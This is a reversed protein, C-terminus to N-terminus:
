ENLDLRTNPVGGAGGGRGEERRGQGGEKLKSLNSYYMVQGPPSMALVCVNVCLNISYMCM